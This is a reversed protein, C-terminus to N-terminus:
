GYQRRFEERDIVIESGCPLTYHFLPASLADDDVKKNGKSANERATTIRLNEYCHLGCRRKGALPIIHDVQLEVGLAERLQDRLAYVSLILERQGPFLKKSTAHVKRRYRCAMASRANKRRRIEPNRHIYERQKRNEETRNLRRNKRRISNIRDKNASYYERSVAASRLRVSEGYEEDEHYRKRNQERIREANAEYYHKQYDVCAGKPYERVTSGCKKCPKGHYYKSGTEKAKKRSEAVEM